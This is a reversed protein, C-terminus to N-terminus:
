KVIVSGVNAQANTTRINTNESAVSIHDAKTGKEIVVSGVNATASGGHSVNGSGLGFVSIGVGTDSSGTTRVDKNKSAVSVNSIQEAFSPSVASVLGMAVMLACALKGM